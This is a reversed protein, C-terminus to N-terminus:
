AAAMQIVVAAAGVIALVRWRVAGPALGVTDHVTSYVGGTAGGVLTAVVLFPVNVSSPSFHGDRLGAVLAVLCSPAAGAACGLVTTALFGRLGWKRAVALAPAGVAAAAVLAVVAAALAWAFLLPLTVIFAIAPTIFLLPLLVPAADAPGETQIELLDKM